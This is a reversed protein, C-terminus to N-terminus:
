RAARVRLNLEIVCASKAAVAGDPPERPRLVVAARMAQGAFLKGWANLPSADAM